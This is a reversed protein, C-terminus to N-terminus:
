AETKNFFYDLFGEFIAEASDINRNALIQPDETNLINKDDQYFDIEFFIGSDRDFDGYKKHNRFATTTLAQTRQMPGTHVKAKGNEHELDFVFGVDKIKVHTKKEFSLDEKVFNNQFLQKLSEFGKGQRSYLITSKTGIRVFSSPSYDSFAELAIYLQKVKERFADFTDVAEIQVGYNSIGFFYIESLDQNGIDFRTSNNQWRVNKGDFRDLAFDIMRGKLDFFPFFRNELRVELTHRM